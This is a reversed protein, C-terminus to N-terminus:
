TLCSAPSARGHSAAPLPQLLVVVPWPHGTGRIPRSPFRTVGQSRVLPALTGALVSYQGSDRMWMAQGLWLRACCPPLPPSAVPLLHPARAARPHYRAAPCSVPGGLAKSGTGAM